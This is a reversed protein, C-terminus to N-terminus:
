PTYLAWATAYKCVGPASTCDAQTDQYLVRFRRGSLIAAQAMSVFRNASQPGVTTLNVAIWSYPGNFANTCHVQIEGSIEFVMDAQCNYWTSASAKAPALSLGAFALGALAVGLMRKRTKKTM